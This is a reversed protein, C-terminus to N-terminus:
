QEFIQKTLLDLVTEEAVSESTEYFLKRGYENQMLEDPEVGLMQANWAFRQRVATESIELKENEMIKQVYLSIRIHEIAEQLAEDKHEKVPDASADAAQQKQALRYLTEQNVAQEPLDFTLLSKLQEKLSKRYESDHQAQVNAEIEERIHKNLDEDTKIEEGFKMYYAENIQPLEKSFVTKILVHVKVVETEEMNPIKHIIEFDKSEGVKMGILAEEFEKALYGDDMIYEYDEKERKGEKESNTEFDFKVKDDLTVAGDKERYTAAQNLYRRKQAEIDTESIDMKKKELSFSKLDLLDFTPWIEFTAEFVLPKQKDIVVDSFSPKAAPRLKEQQIAKEYYEPILTDMAEQAMNKTFRKEMYSKPFKGNRFGNVKVQDKLKLYCRDYTAKIKDIPVTIKLKRKLNGLEELSVELLENEPQSQESPIM